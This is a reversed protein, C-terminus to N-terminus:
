GRADLRHGRSEVMHTKILHDKSKSASQIAKSSMRKWNDLLSQAKRGKQEAEKLVSIVKEDNPGVNTGIKKHFQLLLNVYHRREVLHDEMQDFQQAEVKQLLLSSSALLGVAAQERKQFADNM